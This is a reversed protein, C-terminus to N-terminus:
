SKKKSKATKDTKRSNGSAATKPTGNPNDRKKQASVPKSVPAAKGITHGPPPNSGANSM